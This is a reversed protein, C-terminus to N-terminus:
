LNYNCNINTIVLPCFYYLLQFSSNTCAFSSVYNNLNNSVSSCNVGNAYPQNCDYNLYATSLSNGPYIIRNATNSNLYCMRTSIDRYYGTNCVISIGTFHICNNSFSCTISTKTNLDYNYNTVVYISGVNLLNLRYFYIPALYTPKTGTNPVLTVTPQTFIGSGLDYSQAKTQYTNYNFSDFAIAFRFEPFATTTSFNLHFNSINFLFISINFHIKLSYSFNVSTIFM